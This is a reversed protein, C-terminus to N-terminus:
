KKYYLKEARNFAKVTKFALEEKSFFLLQLQKELLKFPLYTISFLMELTKFNM